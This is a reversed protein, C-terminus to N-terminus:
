RVESHKKLILSIILGIIAYALVILLSGLQFDHELAFSTVLHNVHYTPTWRCIAQVWTPFLKIPMWSGGMIALIFYALNSVVSILQESKLQAILLGMSLFVLGCILLLLGSVLWDTWPMKVGKVWSGVVFVLCISVLYCLYVQFVKSLYYKWIPIPSHELYLLWHNKKDELLMFPFTFFGFGSMSFGTMTLMYSKTFLAQQDANEMQITSSFILFFVVPMGVSLLFVGLMRKLRIIEIELLALM